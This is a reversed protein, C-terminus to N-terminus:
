PGGAHRECLRTAPVIELRGAAIPKGCRACIGYRDPTEYLVRLAEDVEDLAASERAEIAADDEASAGEAGAGPEFALFPERESTEAMMAVAIRDLVATIRARETLLITEYHSRKDGNMIDDPLLHGQQRDRGFRHM